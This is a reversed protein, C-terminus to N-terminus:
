RDDRLPILANREVGAKRGPWYLSALLVLFMGLMLLIGHKQGWLLLTNFDM